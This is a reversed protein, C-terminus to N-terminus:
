AHRGVARRRARRCARRARAEQFLNMGVAFFFSLRPAVQDVTLGAAKGIVRGLLFGGATVAFGLLPPLLVNEADQLAANGTISEFILCPFLVNVVLKLLSAEAEGEIWHVRRM